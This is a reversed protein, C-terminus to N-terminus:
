CNLVIPIISSIQCKKDRDYFRLPCELACMQM